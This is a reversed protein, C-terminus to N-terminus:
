LHARLGGHLRAQERVSHGKLSVQQLPSQDSSGSAGYCWRRFGFSDLVLAGSDNMVVDAPRFNQAVPGELTHALMDPDQPTASPDCM